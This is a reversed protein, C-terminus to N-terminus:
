RIVAIKGIKRETGAEMVYLYIGSAVRRGADNTGLWRWQGPTGTFVIANDKSAVWEGALNYIDLKDMNTPLLDFIVGTGYDGDNTSGSNPKFPNPYVMVQSFVQGVAPAIYFIGFTGLRTATGSVLNQAPDVRSNEVSAWTETDPNFYYLGLRNEHEPVTVFGAEALEGDTYHVNLTVPDSFETEVPGFTRSVGIYRASSPLVSATLQPEFISFTTANSILGVPIEIASFGLDTLRWVDAVMRALVKPSVAAEFKDTTQLRLVKQHQSFPGSTTAQFYIFRQGNNSMTPFANNASAQGVLTSDTGIGTSLRMKVYFNTAGIATSPSSSFTDLNFADAQDQSYAVQTGDTSWSPTWAPLTNGGITIKTMDGLDNVAHPGVETDYDFSQRNYNDSELTRQLISDVNSIVYIDSLTADASDKYVVALSRRDPSWKPQFLGDTKGSATPLNTIQALGKFTTGVGDDTSRPEFVWINGDLSAVIRHLGAPYEPNEFVYTTLAWDPDLWGGFQSASDEVAGSPSIKKFPGGGNKPIQYLQLTQVTDTGSFIIQEYGTYVLSDGDPTWALSSFHIPDGTEVTGGSIASTVQVKDSGDQAISFLNWNGTGAGTADEPSESLYVLRDDGPSWAPFMSLTPKTQLIALSSISYNNSSIDTAEVSTLVQLSISGPDPNVLGAAQSFILSISGNNGITGSSPVTVTIQRNISDPSVSTTTTGNMTVDAPNISSPIITGVPFTLRVTSVGSVLAGQSGTSFDIRYQANSGFTNPTPTVDAASVTTTATNITYLKSPINTAEVSTRVNLRYTGALSSNRLQTGTGFNVYVTDLAGVQTATAPVTVTVTRLLRNCAPATTVTEGNITIFGAIMSTPVVTNSPFTFTITSSGPSLGGQAGLKFKINNAAITNVTQPAPGGTPTTGNPGVFASDVSTTASTITFANSTIDTQEVSTRITLTSNAATPNTIVNSTAGIVILVNSNNGVSVSGPVRATVTRAGPNTFVSDANVGNITVNSVAISAPITGASYTATITSVGDQLAGIGGTNFSITYKANVSQQGPDPTVTAPTTSTSSVAISYSNSTQASTETSTRATLTYSAATSPNFIGTSTAFVVVVMASNNITVSPPVTITVAQGASFVVTAPVGNVTISSPTISAPVTTGGPYTVTITSTGGLLRGQSGTSFTVTYAAKTQVVAPSVPVAPTSITTTAPNITYGNSVVNTAEVSTRVQLTFSAASPNFLGAALLFVVSVSGSAGVNVPTTFTVTRLGQNIVVAASVPTGNVTINAPTISVPITTNNPFTVTITSSGLTLPGDGGVNFGITYQANANATVASPTVTAATVTTAATAIIYTNSAINTTEVTTKVQLTYNGPSVPNTIIGSPIVVTVTGSNGITVSAPVTLVVTRSGADSVAQASVGNVTGGSVTQTAVTTSDNFTLTITSSGAQLAGSSGVNFDVAYAGTVGVTAPNPVVTAATVTTTAGGITYPNSVVATPETSTAVTLTYQGPVPPNQVAAQDSVVVTVSDSNGITATSPITLIIQQGSVMVADAATGNVTIKSPAISTPLVTGSPMTLTVTSSGGQLAGTSGVRFGIVYQATSNVGNPSPTVNAPSVSTQPATITYGQSSVKTVEVSTNVQLTYSGSISPNALNALLDIVVSVAGNNGVTVPTTFTITRAGPSTTPATGLAVTNVKIHAASISFPITTNNPFTLTITSSGLTLAGQGGVNFAMTYQAPSGVGNPSPTVLAPSVTTSAAGTAYIQSIVPTTEVSTHVRVTYNGSTMPNTIVATTSGIVLTVASSNSITVGPPVTITLTQSNKMVTQAQVGKVTVNSALISGLTTSDNFVITITSSGAQLAGSSGVNFGITYTALQNVTAVSHTVNASSISSTAATITYTPSTQLTPQINTSVKLTYSGTTPPNTLGATNTFSLSVIGNASVAVPTTVTVQKSIVDTFPTVTPPVNNVRIDGASMLAPVGTLDDFDVAIQDGISLPSASGLQFTISYGANANLVSPNPLGSLVALTTNTTITYLASVGNTSQASTKVQLTHNGQGPNEIGAAVAFDVIVQSNGAFTLPTTVTVTRAAPNTIVSSATVGNVAVASSLISAPVTTGAPFTVTITNNGALLAGVSGLTFTIQYSASETSRTPAVVVSGVTVATASATITYLPSVLDTPDDSTRLTMTHNSTPVSPNIVAAGVLIHVRHSKNRKLKLPSTINIQRAGPNPTVSDADETTPAGDQETIEIDSTSISAPITTNNPFTLIIQGGEELDHKPTFFLDYVSTTNVTSTGLTVSDFSAGSGGTGIVYNQSSVQTNEVTTNLQLTVTTNANPNKIIDTTSGIILSVVGDNAISVAPVTVTVLRTGPTTAVGASATGNITVNTSTISAPVTTGTPFVISMTSTGGLLRGQGGVNFDITYRSFQNKDSNSLTVTAATISTVAATTLYANSTVTDEKTTAMDLTYQAALIPNEIGAEVKFIVAMNAGDPVNQGPTVRIQRSAPVAVVASAPGAYTGNDVLVDNTSISAPVVTNEPFALIIEDVGAALGGSVGLQASITYEAPTNVTAPTIDVAAPSLTTVDFITYANSTVPSTEVSTAVTLTYTSATTPNVLGSSPSFVVAVNALDALSVPTEVQVTRTGPTGIGTAATGNVTLGYVLGNPVTTNSPFVINFNDMSATLAGSGGLTFQISYGSSISVVSSTPTVTASTLVASSNIQYTNSTVVVPEQSTSVDITYPGATLPNTVGPPDRFQVVIAGASIDKDLRITLTQGSSTVDDSRYGNVYVDNRNRANPATGSPFTVIIDDDGKDLAVTTVFQVNYQSIGGIVPNAVVVDAASVNAYAQQPGILFLGTLGIYFLPWQAVSLMRYCTKILM